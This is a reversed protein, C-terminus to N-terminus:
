AAPAAQQQAAAREAMTAEMASDMTHSPEPESEKMGKALGSALKRVLEAM